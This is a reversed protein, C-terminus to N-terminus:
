IAYLPLQLACVPLKDKDSDQMTSCLFLMLVHHAELAPVRLGTWALEASAAAAQQM